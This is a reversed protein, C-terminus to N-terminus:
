EDKLLYVKSPYKEAYNRILSKIVENEPYQRLKEKLEKSNYIDYPSTIVGMGYFIGNEILVCAYEGGFACPEVIAYSLHLLQIENLAAHVQENHYDKEPVNLLANPSQDLFCLAPHLKHNKVLKWLTRHADSMLGFTALPELYRKKRDIALRLYGTSDEFLYIGFQKEFNKQSINHAPWLRKIEISELLSATFETACENFSISHINRLFEQRKSGTNLGTFHSLVRRKLAKAKGVYIVKGKADHFYYVGPSYPLANVQEYAVHPPLIQEHNEKKLFQQVMQSGGQEMIKSFLAATADADGGARHRNQVNIDL